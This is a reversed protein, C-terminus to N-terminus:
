TVGAADTSGAGSGHCDGVSGVTDCWCVRWDIPVFYKVSYYVTEFFLYFQKTMVECFKWWAGVRIIKPVFIDFLSFIIYPASM